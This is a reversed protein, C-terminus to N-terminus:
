RMIQQVSFALLIIVPLLGAITQAWNMGLAVRLGVILCGMSWVAGVLSGLVPVLCLIQPAVSYAVVQFVISFNVSNGVLLRYMVYLLGTFLYAKLLLLATNKLGSLLPDADPTLLDLLHSLQPDNAMGPELVSHLIGGWLRETTTEIICILLYFLLARNQRVEPKLSAFFRSAGLMVRLLTQYFAAPWGDPAPAALWPNEMLVKSDESAHENGAVPKPSDKKDPEDDSNRIIRINADETAIYRHQGVSEEKQSFDDHPVVSKQEDGNQPMELEKGPIIAGPPLPDDEEQTVESAPTAKAQQRRMEVMVDKLCEIVGQEASFRFRCGCRPCNAIVTHKPLREPPMDRCFGCEPCIIEM